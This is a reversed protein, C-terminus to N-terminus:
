HAEMMQLESEAEVTSFPMSIRVEYTGSATAHTELTAEYGYMQELRARTNTLGVGRHPTATTRRLVPEDDEAGDNEIRVRLRGGVTESHLILNGGEPRKAIGHRIANEVLPQLLFRPVMAEQTEPDIAFTVMLRPGFRVKELALYEKTVAIEERLSVQHVDPSELTRRLLDALRAIMQTAIRPQNDLVLTSIANLTNFLFHPQLQYRLARMQAQRAMAELAHLRGREEELAYYHKIGFYLFGWAALVFCSGTAYVFIYTWHFHSSAVGGFRFESWVSASSVLIGLGYAVVTCTLLARILPVRARWLAHCVGYMLFSCAFGALLFMVRYAVDDRMNRLPLMSAAVATAYLLWGGLQFHWFSRFRSSPALQAVTCIRHAAPATEEVPEACSICPEDCDPTPEDIGATVVDWLLRVSDPM